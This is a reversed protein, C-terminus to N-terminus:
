ICNGLDSLIPQKEWRMSARRAGINGLEAPINILISKFTYRQWNRILLHLIIYWQFWFFWSQEIPSSQLCEPYLQALYKSNVIHCETIDILYMDMSLNCHITHHTKKLIYRWEDITDQWVHGVEWCTVLDGCATCQQLWVNEGTESWNKGFEKMRREGCWMVTDWHM